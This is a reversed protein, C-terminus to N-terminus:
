GTRRPRPFNKGQGTTQGSITRPDHWNRVSRSQLFALSFSKPTSQGGSGEEFVKIIKPLEVKGFNFQ